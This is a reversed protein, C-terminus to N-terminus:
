ERAAHVKAHSQDDRGDGDTQGYADSRQGVACLADERVASNALVEKM